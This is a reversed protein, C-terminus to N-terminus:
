TWSQNVVGSSFLHRFSREKFWSGLVNVVAKLLKGIREKTMDTERHLCLPLVLALNILFYVFLYMLLDNDNPSGDVCLQTLIFILM